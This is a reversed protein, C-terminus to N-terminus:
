PKKGSSLQRIFEEGQAKFSPDVAIAKQIESIALNLQGSEYYSAALNIRMQIDTPALEVAQKYLDIAAVYNKRSAFISAWSKLNDASVM